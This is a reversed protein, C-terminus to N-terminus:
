NSINKIKRREKPLFGLFKLNKQNRHLMQIKKAVGAISVTDLDRM